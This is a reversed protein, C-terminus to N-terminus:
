PGPPAAPQGAPVAPLVEVEELPPTQWTRKLCEDSIGDFERLHFREAFESISGAPEEVGLSSLRSCFHYTSYYWKHDTGHALFLHM